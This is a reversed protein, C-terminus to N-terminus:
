YDTCAGMRQPLYSALIRNADTRTPFCVVPISRPPPDLDATFVVDPNSHRTHGQWIWNVRFLCDYGARDIGADESSPGNGLCLISKPQGLRRRLDEWRTICRM